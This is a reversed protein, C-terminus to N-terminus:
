RSEGAAIQIVYSETEEASIILPTRVQGWTVQAVKCGSPDHVSIADGLSVNKIFGAKAIFHLRICGEFLVISEIAYTEVKKDYRHVQVYGHKYNFQVGESPLDPSPVSM